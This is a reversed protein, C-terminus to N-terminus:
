TWKEFTQNLEPIEKNNRQKNSRETHSLPTNHKEVIFTYINIHIKIDLPTQKIFNPAHTNLAYINIIIEEQQNTEKVLICHGDKGRLLKTKFDVKDSLLIALGAQKWAGM